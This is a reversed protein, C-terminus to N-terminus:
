ELKWKQLVFDRAAEKSTIKGELQHTEVETLIEKFLRGAPYGWTLLDAGRLLPEPRLEDEKFSALANKCFEYIELKRHSAMCDIRHQELHLPFNPNRLFRKLTSEKMNKVDAFRLHHDVLETVTEILSRSAKLRRLIVETMKAGVQAHGNFRIRDPPQHSFTPPKGVDHLLCGWGLEASHEPTLQELLMLTHIWVDGEPHHEPPQACAKMPLLEPMIIELLQLRDLWEFAIRARGETLMRTLEEFIREASIKHLGERESMIAQQLSTEIEFDFRSGFRIARLIRLYDERIREAAVGISRIVKAQLDKQGDVWDIIKNETPDFLMGNITFDRRAVDERATATTISAPHRGDAIGVDKRFSAVEITLPNEEDASVVLMVNFAEGVPITRPFIKRLDDPLANSCIDIDKSQIGMVRDRVCGGVWYAEFGKQRLELVIWRAFDELKQSSSM